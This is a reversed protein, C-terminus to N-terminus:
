YNYTTTKLHKHNGISNITKILENLDNYCITIINFETM